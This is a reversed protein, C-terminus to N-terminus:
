GGTAGDPPKRAGPCGQNGAQGDRPIKPGVGDTRHRSDSRIDRFIPIGHPGQRRVHTSQSYWSQAQHSRYHLRPTGSTQWAMPSGGVGRFTVSGGKLVPDPLAARKARVVCEVRGAAVVTAGWAGRVCLSSGGEARVPGGTLPLSHSPDGLEVPLRPRFNALSPATVRPVGPAGPDQRSPVRPGTAM